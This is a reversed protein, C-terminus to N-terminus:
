RRMPRATSTTTPSFATAGGTKGDTASFGSKLAPPPILAQSPLPKKMVLLPLRRNNPFPGNDDLFHATVDPHSTM